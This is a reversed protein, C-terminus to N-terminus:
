FCSSGGLLRAPTGAFRPLDCIVARPLCSRGAAMKRRAPYPLAPTIASTSGGLPRARGRLDRQFGPPKLGQGGQLSFGNGTPSMKKLGIAGGGLKLWGLWEPSVVRVINTLSKRGPIRREKILILGVQRAARLANQVSTRCCGALAAIQDIALTCTGRRQCERGVVTLAALEAPTFHAALKAPVVGSM